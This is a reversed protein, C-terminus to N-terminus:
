GGTVPPFFAIERVDKIPSTMDGQEQDLAVRILDPQSFTAAGQDDRARLFAVLDAATAVEIDLHDPLTLREEAKGMRERMWAFYLIDVTHATM